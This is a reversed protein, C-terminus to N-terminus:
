RFDRVLSGAQRNLARALHCLEFTIGDEKIEIPNQDVGRGADRAVPLFPATVVAKVNAGNQPKRVPDPGDFRHPQYSGMQIGVPFGLTEGCGLDNIRLADDRYLSGEPQQFSKRLTGPADHRRAAALQGPSSQCPRRQRNRADEHTSIIYPLALRRGLGIKYGRLTEAPCCLSTHGYLIRGGPDLSRASGSHLHYADRCGVGPVPKDLRRYDDLPKCRQAHDASLSLSVAQDDLDLLSRHRLESVAGPPSQLVDRPPYVGALSTRCDAPNVPIERPSYKFSHSIQPRIRTLWEACHGHTCALSVTAGDGLL